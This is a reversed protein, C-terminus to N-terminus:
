LSFLQQWAAYSFYDFFSYYIVFAGFALDSASVVCHELFSLVSGASEAVNLSSHRVSETVMGDFVLFLPVSYSGRFELSPYRAFVPNYLWLVTRQFRTKM